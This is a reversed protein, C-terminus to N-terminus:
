RTLVYIVCKSLIERREREKIERDLRESSCGKGGGKEEEGEKVQDDHAIVCIDGGTEKM